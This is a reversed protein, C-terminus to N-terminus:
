NRSRSDLTKSGVKNEAGVLHPRSRCCPGPELCFFAAGPLESQPELYFLRSWATGVGPLFPDCWAARVGAGAGSVLFKDVKSITKQTQSLYNM